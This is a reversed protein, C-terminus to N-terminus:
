RVKARTFFVITGFVIDGAAWIFLILIFGIGAGVSAGTKEAETMTQMSQGVGAMGAVMWYVMLANFLAFIAVAVKGFFSRRPLRLQKGCAPCSAAEDSVQANCEPCAKLAM